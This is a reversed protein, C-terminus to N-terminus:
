TDGKKSMEKQLNTYCVWAWPFWLIINRFTTAVLAPAAKIVKGLRRNKRMGKSFDPWEDQILLAERNTEFANVAYEFARYALAVKMGFSGWKLFEVPSAISSFILGTCFIGLVRLPYSLYYLVLDVRDMRIYPLPQVGRLILVTAIIMYVVSGSLWLWLTLRFTRRGSVLRFVAGTILLIVFFVVYVFVGGWKLLFPFLLFFLAAGLALMVLKVVINIDQLKEKLKRAFPKMM